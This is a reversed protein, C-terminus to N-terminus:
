ISFRNAYFGQPTLELIGYTRSSWMAARGLSGPNFFVPHSSDDFLYRHTHGFLCIEVGLERARASLRAFGFHTDLHDSHTLLINRDAVTIVLELDSAQRKVGDMNGPIAHSPIPLSFNETLDHAFDGLHIVLEVESQHKELVEGLTAIDGHTDSVVLIKM